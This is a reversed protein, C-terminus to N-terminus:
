VCHFRSVFKEVFASVCFGHLCVLSQELGFQLLVLTVVDAQHESLTVRFEAVIGICVADKLVNDVFLRVTGVCRLRNVAEAVEIQLSVLKALRNQVALLNQLLVRMGVGGGGGSIEDSVVFIGGPLVLVCHLAIPIEQVGERM